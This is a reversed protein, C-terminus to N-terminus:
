LFLSLRGRHLRSNIVFQFFSHSPIQSIGVCVIYRLSVSFTNKVSKTYNIAPKRNFFLDFYFAVIFDHLNVNKCIKKKQLMGNIVYFCLGRLIYKEVNSKL